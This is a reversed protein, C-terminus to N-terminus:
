SGVEEDTGDWVFEALPLHERCNVCFTAGYFSPDKAFTEALAAGMKTVTGCKLHKYSTRYPRVWGKKREEESLVYYAKHQGTKPDIPQPAGKNRMRPDQPLGDTTEKM